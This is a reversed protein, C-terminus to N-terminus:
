PVTLLSATLLSAGVTLLFGERVIQTCEPGPTSSHFVSKSLPYLGSAKFVRVEKFLSDLANKTPSVLM